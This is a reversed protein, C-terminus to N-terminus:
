CARSMRFHRTLVLLLGSKVGLFPKVTLPQLPEVQLGGLGFVPLNM